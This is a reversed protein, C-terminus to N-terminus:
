VCMEIMICYRWAWNINPETPWEQMGIHGERIPGVMFYFRQAHAPIPNGCIFSDGVWMKELWHNYSIINWDRWYVSWWSKLLVKFLYCFAQIKQCSHTFIFFQKYVDSQSRLLSNQIKPYKVFFYIKFLIKFSDRASGDGIRLLASVFM